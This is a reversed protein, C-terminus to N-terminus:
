RGCHVQGHFPAGRVEVCHRRPGQHWGQFPGPFLLFTSCTTPGIWTTSTASSSWALAAAVLRSRTWPPPLHAAAAVLTTRPTALVRGAGTPRPTVAPPAQLGACFTKMSTNAARAAARSHRPTEASPITRRSNATPARTTRCSLPLAPQGERLLGITMREGSWPPTRVLLTRLAVEGITIKITLCDTEPLCTPMEGLPEYMDMSPGDVTPGFFGLRAVGGAGGRVGRYEQTQDSTELTGGGGGGGVAFVELNKIGPQRVSFDGSEKFTHIFYGGAFSIEGGIAKM